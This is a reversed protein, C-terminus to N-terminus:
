GRTGFPLTATLQYQDVLYRVGEETPHPRDPLILRPNSRVAEGWRIEHWCPRTKLFTRFALNWKEVNAAHSSRFVQVFAVCRDGPVAQVLDVVRRLYTDPHSVAVDNAGIEFIVWGRVKVNPALDRAVELASGRDPGHGASYTTRGGSANVLVAATDKIPVSISDGIALNPPACGAVVAVAAAVGALLGTIGRHKM